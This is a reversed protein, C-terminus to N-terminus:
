LYDTLSWVSIGVKKSVRFYNKHTGELWKKNQWENGEDENLPVEGHESWFKKPDHMYESLKLMAAMHTLFWHKNGIDGCHCKKLTPHLSKISSAEAFNRAKAEERTIGEAEARVDHINLSDLNIREM